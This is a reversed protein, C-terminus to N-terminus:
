EGRALIDAASELAKRLEADLRAHVRAADREAALEAALRDPVNLVSDRIARACEFAERRAKGADILRGRKQRNSLKLAHAREVAVRRQAELLSPPAPKDTRLKGAGAAWEQMALEPDAIYPRGDERAISRKLRGSDVAKQVATHSVGVSTAFARLSVRPAPPTPPAPRASRKRTAARRM